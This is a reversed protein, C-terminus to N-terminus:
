YIKTAIVPFIAGFIWRKMDTIVCHRPRIDASDCGSSRFRYRVVAALPIAPILSAMVNQM